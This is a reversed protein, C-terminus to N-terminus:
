YKEFIYLKNDTDNVYVYKDSVVPKYNLLTKETIPLITQWIIEETNIDFIGVRNVNSHWHTEPDRGTYYIKDGYLSNETVIVGVGDFVQPITKLHTSTHLQLDFCMLVGGTLSYLKDQYIRSSFEIVPWKGEKQWQKVCYKVNGNHLDIGMVHGPTLCIITDSHFTLLQFSTSSGFYVRFDFLLQAEGTDLRLQYLKSYLKFYLMGGHVMPEEMEIKKMWVKGGAPTIRHLTDPKEAKSNYAVIDDGALCVATLERGLETTRGDRDIYMLMRNNHCVVGGNLELFDYNCDHLDSIIERYSFDDKRIQIIANHHFVYLCSETQGVISFNGDWIEKLEMGATKM